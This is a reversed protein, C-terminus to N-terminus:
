SKIQKFITLCQEIDVVCDRSSNREMLWHGLTQECLQMQIYLVAWEQQPVTITNDFKWVKHSGLSNQKFKCLIKATGAENSSSSTRNDSTESADTSSVQKHSTCRMADIQSLTEFREHNQSSEDFTGFNIIESSATDSAPFTIKSAGTEIQGHKELKIKM